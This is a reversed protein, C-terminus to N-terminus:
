MYREDKQLISWGREKEQFSSDNHIIEGSIKQEIEEALVGSNTDGMNNNYWIIELPGM